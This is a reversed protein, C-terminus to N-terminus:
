NRLLRGDAGARVGPALIASKREGENRENAETPKGVGGTGTSGHVFPVLEVFCGWGFGGLFGSRQRTQLVVTTADKPLLPSSM